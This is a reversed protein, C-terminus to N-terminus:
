GHPNVVGVPYLSSQPSQGWPTLNVGTHECGKPTGRIPSILRHETTTQHWAGPTNTRPGRPLPEWATTAQSWCPAVQYFSCLEKCSTVWQTPVLPVYFFGLQSGSGAAGARAQLLEASPGLCGFDKPKRRAARLAWCSFSGWTISSNPSALDWSTM